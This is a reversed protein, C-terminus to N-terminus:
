ARGSAGNGLSRAVADALQELTFPKSLLLTRESSSVRGVDPGGHFGTTLVAPMGPAAARARELLQLGNLRPMTVDSVLLDCSSPAAEIAALAALPDNYATVRYGLRRLITEAMQTLFPEDDVVIVHAPGARVPGAAPEEFPLYVTFTTGAGPRSDVGLAAGHNIVVDRVVSLGIGTGQDPPKTTFFPEFLRGLTGEDMGVGTDAVRLRAYRGPKLTGARAPTGPGGDAEDLTLTLRGSDGMAQMANTCLNVIAQHLQDADGVVPREADPVDVRFAVGPHALPRLFAAVERVLEGVRVPRRAPVRKRSFDLVRSSLAAARQLGAMLQGVHRQVGPLHATDAQIFEAYASLGALVNNLDHAIRAALTGLTEMKQVHMREAELRRVKSEAERRKRRSAADNLERRVAPVLRTLNGKLLYDNAGAKMCEVAVDEGVTGSILLFPGDFGAERVVALADLGNLQPLMFDSIILQWGAPLAARLDAATQVRLHQVDYGGRRLERMQLHMDNEDDEVFLVKLPMM